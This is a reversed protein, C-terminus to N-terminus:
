LASYITLDLSADTRELEMWRKKAETLSDFEEFSADMTDGYSSKLPATRQVRLVFPKFMPKLVGRKAEDDGFSICDKDWGM